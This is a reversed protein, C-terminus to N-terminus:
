YHDTVEICNPLAFLLATAQMKNVNNSILREIMSIMNM